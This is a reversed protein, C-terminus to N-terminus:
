HPNLMELFEQNSRQKNIRARSEASILSGGILVYDANEWNSSYDPEIRIKSMDIKIQKLRQYLEFLESENILTTDRFNIIFQINSIEGKTNIHLTFGTGISISDRKLKSISRDIAQEFTIEWYNKDIVILIGPHGEIKDNEFIPKVSYSSFASKTHSFKNQSQSSGEISIFICSIYIIIKFIILWMFSFSTSM